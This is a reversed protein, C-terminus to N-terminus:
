GSLVHYGSDIYSTNGTILKAEDSVLFRAYAGVDDISVAEHLSAKRYSREHLEEFGKIGSAARTPIPGASLTNVRIGQAGLEASMYKVMSELAAKVPGMLNYNPVVKQSGYYSTTLISGGNKMLPEARKVIRALSHCSINMASLFGELSSDIIRGHLDELPAFAIAHLIFDLEGWEDTIKQFLADMQEENIVNLPEIIPAKVQEALPRVYPEAKENLYTIALDAGAGSFAKACGWAISHDNAIGIVLGKKGSLSQNHM